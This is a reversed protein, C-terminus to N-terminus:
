RRTSARRRACPAAHHAAVATPQAPRRRASRTAIRAAEAESLGLAAIADSVEWHTEMLSILGDRLEFRHGVERENPIGHIVGRAQVTFVLHDRTPMILERPDFQMEDFGEYLERMAERVGDHGHFTGKTDLFKPTQVFVVDLALAALPLEDKSNLRDYFTQAVAAFQEREVQTPALPM